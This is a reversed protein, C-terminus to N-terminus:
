MPWTPRDKLREWVMWRLPPRLPVKFTTDGNPQLSQLGSQFFSPVTCEELPTSLSFVLFLLVTMSVPLNDGNINAQVLTTEYGCWIRLKQQTSDLITRRIGVMKSIEMWCKGRTADGMYSSNNQYRMKNKRFGLKNSETKSRQLAKETKKRTPCSTKNASTTSLRVNPQVRQVSLMHPVIKQNTRSGHQNPWLNFIVIIVMQNNLIAM